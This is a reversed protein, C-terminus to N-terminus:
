QGSENTAAWITCSVPAIPVNFGKIPIDLQPMIDLLQKVAKPPMSTFDLM